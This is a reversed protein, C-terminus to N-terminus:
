RKMQSDVKETLLVFVSGMTTIIPLPWLFYWESKVISICAGLMMFLSILAAVYRLRSNLFMLALLLESIGVVYMVWSSLGCSSFYEVEIPLSIVKITGAVLYGISLAYIIVRHVFSHIKNVDYKIKFNDHWILCIM